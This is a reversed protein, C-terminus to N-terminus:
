GGVGHFLVLPPNNVDGCLIVHTSGYSTSIDREEKDVSWMDLLKDYTNMINDRAKKNKFVKM